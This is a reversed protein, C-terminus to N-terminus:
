RNGRAGLEQRFQLHDLIHSRTILGVLTRGDVVMLQNVQHESLLQLAETVEADPAVCLLPSWTMIDSVTTADWLTEPLVKVDSVSIIGALGNGDCIPLARRGRHLVQERVFTGVPTDPSLYEPDPEMLASVKIGRFTEQVAVEQRSSEAAGHLFWGIFATWVGGLLNGSFLQFVGWAMLLFAVVHGAGAALATAKALNGTIAWAAARLVRGGDLPFGPVLNFLALFLNIFALYRLIASLVAAGSVLDGALAFAAALALSTVPGVVAVWFEDGPTHAELKIASVGGFIFLTIGSLPLGKDLAVLSHALEHVLVSLFLLLASGGGAAWYLYGDWNPYENPYYGVGLTWTVLFLAILWTIHIHIPIGAIRAIRITTGM